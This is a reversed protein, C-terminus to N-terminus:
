KLCRRLCCAATPPRRLSVLTGSGKSGARRELLRSSSRTGATLLDDAEVPQTFRRKKKANGYKLSRRMPVSKSGVCGRLGYCCHRWHQRRIPVAGSFRLYTRNESMVSPNDTRRQIKPLNGLQREHKSGVSPCVSAM